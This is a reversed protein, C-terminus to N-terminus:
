KQQDARVSDILCDLMYKVHLIQDATMGKAIAARLEARAAGFNHNADHSETFPRFRAFAEEARSIAKEKKTM